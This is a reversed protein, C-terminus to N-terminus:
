DTIEVANNGPEEGLAIRPEVKINGAAVPESSSGEDKSKSGNKLPEKLKKRNRCDEITRDSSGFHHQETQKEELMTSIGNPEMSVENRLISSKNAVIFETTTRKLSSNHGNHFSKSLIKREQIQKIIRNWKNKPNGGANSPTGDTSVTSTAM